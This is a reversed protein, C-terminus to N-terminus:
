TVPRKVAKRLTRWANVYLEPPIFREPLAGMKIYFGIDYDEGTHVEVLLDIAGLLEYHKKFLRRKLWNM